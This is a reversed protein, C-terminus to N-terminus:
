LDNACTATFTAFVLDSKDWVKDGLYNYPVFFSSRYYSRYITSGSKKQIYYVTNEYGDCSDTRITDTAAAVSSKATFLMVFAFVIGLSYLSLKKM